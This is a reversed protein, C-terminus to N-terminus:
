FGPPPSNVIYVVTGGQYGRSYWTNGCQYYNIGNIGVMTGNCPLTTVYTPSAVAAGVAVGTVFAAGTNNYGHHYHDDWEDEAFDQWDERNENQHQQWDERNDDRSGQRDGANDQRNGQRDGANEQRQGQAPRQSATERTGGAQAPRQATGAQRNMSPAPRQSASRSSFGGGSAAGGRSFGGGGRGGGGGGRGGGRAEAMGIFTTLFLFM